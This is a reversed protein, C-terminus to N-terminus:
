QGPCWESRDAPSLTSYTAEGGSMLADIVRSQVLVDRLTIFTGEATVARWPPTLRFGSADTEAIGNAM